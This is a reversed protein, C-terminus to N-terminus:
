VYIIEMVVTILEVELCTRRYHCPLKVGLGIKFVIVSLGVLRDVLWCVSMVDKTTFWGQQLWARVRGRHLAAGRPQHCARLRGQLRLPRGERLPGGAPVSHLQARGPTKISIRTSASTELM